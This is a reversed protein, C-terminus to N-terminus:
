PHSSGDHQTQPSTPPTPHYGNNKQFSNCSPMVVSAKLKRISRISEPQRHFEKNNKQKQLLKMLSWESPGNAPPNQSGEIIVLVRPSPKAFICYPKVVKVTGSSQLTVTVSESDSYIIRVGKKSEFCELDRVLVTFARNNNTGEGWFLGPTGYHEQLIYFIESITEFVACGLGTTNFGWAM